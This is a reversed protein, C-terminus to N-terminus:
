NFYIKSAGIPAEFTKEKEKTKTNFVQLESVDSFSTNLAYFRDNKAAMGYFSPYGTTFLEITLFESSPLTSSSSAMKYVKNGVSYYLTQGDLIMLSPHSGEPFELATVSNDSLKIKSIAGVTENGTWAAKGSSLVLLNGQNDFILEDPNDKVEIVKEVKNTTANIISVKNNSGFAGKHSVYLKNNKAVIREPGVVVNIKSEVEYTKLNVVSVFDDDTNKGYEGEGWNTVYGKDGIIAMYRPKKLGTTISGEKEFTYRNVVTVTNQNDVVVFARNESFAISQMYTGLEEGNVKNYVKSQIESLDEPLFSITGSGAGSGEGSILVGNEYDGKPLQPENDSSCSAFFITGAAFLIKLYSKNIKM